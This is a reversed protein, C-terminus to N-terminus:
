TKNNRNGKTCHQLKKKESLRGITPALPWTLINGCLYPLLQLHCGKLVHTMLANGRLAAPSLIDTRCLEVIEEGAATMISWLAICGSPTNLPNEDGPPQTVTSCLKRLDRTLDTFHFGSRWLDPSTEPDSHVNGGVQWQKRLFPHVQWKWCADQQWRLFYINQEKLAELRSEYYMNMQQKLGMTKKVQTIFLLSEVKSRVGETSVNSQSFWLAM